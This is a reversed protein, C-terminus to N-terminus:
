QDNKKVGINFPNDTCTEEYNIDEGVYVKWEEETMNRSLKDCIDEIMYESKSPRLILRPEGSAGSILQRGNPSFAITTIFGEHDTMIIPLNTPDGADWMRVTADFSSTAIIKDDPSFKLDSIKATHGRFESVMNHSNVDWTKILGNQHGTALITGDYSFTVVNIDNLRENDEYIVTAENNNNRDWLIVRGDRTGGAVINGDPSISLSMIRSQATAIVEGSGSELDWLTLNNDTSSSLMYKSDPTFVISRIKNNEGTFLKPAQSGRSLDFLQIGAGDTGCALWRGDKTVALVRNVIGNDIITTFSRTTDSLNWSFVM